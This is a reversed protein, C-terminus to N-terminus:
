VFTFRRIHDAKMGLFKPGVHMGCRVVRDIAVHAQTKPLTAPAGPFDATAVNTSKPAGAGTPHAGNHAHKNSMSMMEESSKGRQDLGEARIPNIEREPRNSLGYSRVFM